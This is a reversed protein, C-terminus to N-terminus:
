TPAAHTTRSAASTLASTTRRRASRSSRTATRLARSQLHGHFPGKADDGRRTPSASTARRPAEDQARAGDVDVHRLDAPRRELLLDDVVAAGAHALAVGDGRGDGARERADLQVLAVDDLGARHERAEQRERARQEVGLRALRGLLAEGGRDVREPLGLGGDRAGLDRALLRRRSSARM